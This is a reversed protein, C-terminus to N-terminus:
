LSGGELYLSNTAYYLNAKERIEEREEVAAVVPDSIDTSHIESLSPRAYSDILSLLDDLTM